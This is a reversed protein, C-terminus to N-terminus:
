TAPVNAPEVSPTAGAAVSIETRTSSQAPAPETEPTMAPISQAMLWWVVAGATMFRLRPAVFLSEKFEAISRAYASPMVTTTAAPFAFTSAQVVEGALLLTEAIVTPAVVRV